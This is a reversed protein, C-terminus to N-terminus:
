IGLFLADLGSIGAEAPIVSQSWRAGDQEENTMARAQTPRAGPGVSCTQRTRQTLGIWSETGSGGEPARRSNACRPSLASTRHVGLIRQLRLLARPRQNN